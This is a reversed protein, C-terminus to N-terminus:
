RGEKRGAAVALLGHMIELWEDVDPPSTFITAGAVPCDLEAEAAGRLIGVVAGPNQEVFQRILSEHQRVAPADVLLIDWLSGPNLVAKGFEDASGVSLCWDVYDPQLLERIRKYHIDAQTSTFVVVNCKAAM